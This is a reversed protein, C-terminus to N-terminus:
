LRTVTQRPPASQIAYPVGTKPKPQLRDTLHRLPRRVVHVVGDGAGLHSAAAVSSEIQKQRTLFEALLRRWCSQRKNRKRKEPLATLVSQSPKVVRQQRQESSFACVCLSVYTAGTTQYRSVPACVRKQQGRCPDTQRTRTNTAASHLGDTIITDQRRIQHSKHVTLSHLCMVFPYLRNRQDADPGSLVHHFILKASTIHNLDPNTRQTRSSSATGQQSAPDCANQTFGM